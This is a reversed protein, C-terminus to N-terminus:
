NSITEPINEKEPNSDDQSKSQLSSAKLRPPTYIDDVSPIQLLPNLEKAPTNRDFPLSSQMPVYKLKGDKNPTFLKQNLTSYRKTQKSLTMNALSKELNETNM